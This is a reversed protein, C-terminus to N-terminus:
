WAARPRLSPPQTACLVDGLTALARRALAQVAARSSDLQEQVRERKAFLRVALDTAWQGRKKVEYQSHATVLLEHGAGRPRLQRIAAAGLKQLLGPPCSSAPGDMLLSDDRAGTPPALRRWGKTIRIARPLSARRVGLGFGVFTMAAFPRRGDASEGGGLCLEHFYVVLAAVLSVVVCVALATIQTWSM